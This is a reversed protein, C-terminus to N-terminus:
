LQQPQLDQCQQKKQLLLSRLHATARAIREDLNGNENEDMVSGGGSPPPTASCGADDLRQLDEQVSEKEWASFHESRAMRSEGGRAVGFISPRKMFIRPREFMAQKRVRDAEVARKLSSEAVEFGTERWLKSQPRGFKYPPPERKFLAQRRQQAGHWFESNLSASFFANSSTMYDDNGDDTDIDDAMKRNKNKETGEAM